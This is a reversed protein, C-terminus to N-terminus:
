MYTRFDPLTLRGAKNKKLTTKFKTLGRSKWTFKLILKGTESMTANHNHGHSERYVLKLLYLIKIINFKRIQSAQIGREKNLVDKIEKLTNQLTSYM